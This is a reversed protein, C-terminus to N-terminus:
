RNQSFKTSEQKKKRLPLDLIVPPNSPIYLDACISCNILLTSSGIIEVGYGSHFHGNVIVRANKAPSSSSNKLLHIDFASHMMLIDLKEEMEEDQDWTSLPYLYHSVLQEETGGAM